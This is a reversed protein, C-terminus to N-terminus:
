LRVGQGDADRDRHSPIGVLAEGIWQRVNGTLHLVLNGASNSTENPRWWLDDDMFQYGQYASPQFFYDDALVSWAVPAHGLAAGFYYTARARVGIRDGQRLHDADGVAVRRPEDPLVM